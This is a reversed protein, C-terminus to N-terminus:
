GDPSFQAERAAFGTRVVPFSKGDGTLPLAWIGDPKELLLMQGDTSWDNPFGGDNAVVQPNRSGDATLEILQTSGIRLCLLRKSDRSWLAPTNTSDFTLRRSLGRATDILWLDGDRQVSVQRSDPALEPFLQRADPSGLPAIPAGSRDVWVLQNAPLAGTRYALLGSSSVSFAGRPPIQTSQIAPAVVVPDGSLRERAADFPAAMLAGQRVFLLYGSAFVAASDSAFLREVIPAELSGVYVGQVEPRVSKAYFLFHLGDPLFEPFQVSNPSTIPPGLKVASSTGNAPVRFLGSFIAFLIVGERSWTGAAATGTQALEQVRSGALDLRKLKNGAFFAVARSDPAWFPYSADETGALPRAVQQDLSRLFLQPGKGGTAVFVLQRGDPSLAFSLSDTTPPTTVDLRFVPTETATKRLTSYALVAAALVAAGGALWVLSTRRSSVAAVKTAAPAAIARLSRALDAASQWREDPDKALCTLVIDALSAPVSPRVTSIAPPESDLIAAVVRAQTAGPFARRNTLIEYLVAGFAFLDSQPTAELGELQEPSMYPVTGLLTGGATPPLTPTGTPRGIHLGSKAPGVAKAIGFDLLKVGGKTLMVNSPKLDRHVIGIRHVAALADAVQIAIELADRLPLGPEDWSRREVRSLREALTEGEVLELVLGRVGGEEVVGYIAAVNPHNLSALTRAERDFRVRREADPWWVSPLIKIAIDRGLTTDRARYVEGMGGAGLFATIEYSGLVTGVLSTGAHAALVQAAMALAPNDVVAPESDAALLSELELRLSEDDGCADRVYSNRDEGHRELAAHYISSIRRWRDDTM